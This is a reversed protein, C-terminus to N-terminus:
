SAVLWRHQSVAALGPALEEVEGFGAERAKEAIRSHTALARSRARHTADFHELPLNAVAESSSFHWLHQEPHLRAQELLSHHRPLFHPPLRRYAALYRVEAGAQKLVQALWDRGQEGRVVLVKAGAWPHRQLASWLAESDSAADPAPAAICPPPVDRARLAATTGAGTSGALCGAPWPRHGSHAFFAQVANASVFMVLRFQHLDGWAARLPESDQVAAIRILPLAAAALGAARLSRLWPQAQRSPRTVILLPPAHGAPGRREPEPQL